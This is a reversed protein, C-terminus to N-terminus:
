LYNNELTKIPPQKHFHMQGNFVTMAVRTDIANFNTELVKSHIIHLM